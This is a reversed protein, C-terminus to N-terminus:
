FMKTLNYIDGAGMVVLIDNNKLHKKLYSAIKSIKSIYVTKTDQIKYNTNQFTKLNLNHNQSKLNSIQSEIVAQALKQSSVKAKITQSERGAVSYIDALILKDVPAESLVKVFDQFLYYTRQYQHPQFVCWIKRARRLKGKSFKPPYLYKQAVAELTVKVETPHHGYDSIIKIRRTKGRKSGRLETTKIEFRRWAGRYESLARFSTKDPIKLTRAVALAALADALIHEGPLKLIRKLKTTATKNELSYYVMNKVITFFTDSGRKLTKQAQFNPDSILKQTNEDGKNIILVGQKPLQKVFKSFAKLINNLNKFYDLHDKDITTIVIIKPWYNLFSSKYEDAEIVLYKSKGSRFNSDDFEKLKTGIIVTPDLGAKILILSIMATTTGKGHTGCIAITFYKKTLEGLAQPYSLVRLKYGMVQLKRATKLEPNDPTVAPSYVVLDPMQTLGPKVCTLNTSKHRGIFVKIGIKRLQETIESRALDSGSVFDGQALYYRALASVGIGGIGIFHIRM